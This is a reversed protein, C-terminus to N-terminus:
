RQGSPAGLRQLQWGRASLRAPLGQPGALHLAGVAVLWPGDEDQLLADIRAAWRAQREDLLRQWLAATAPTGACGCWQRWAALEDLRGESWARMLRQQVAAWAPDELQDLLAHVLAAGDADPRVRWAAALEQPTDLGRLPLGAARAHGRLVEEQSWGGDWGARRARADGLAALQQLMTGTRGDAVLCATDAARALRQTLAAPWPQAPPATSGAPRPATTEVERLAAALAPGQADLELVLGRSARMAARLAPGPAASALTGHHVTGYLWGQRAPRGGRAPREIRWLLGHDRAERLAAQLRATDPVAAPPPPCDGRAPPRATTAAAGADDSTAAARHPGPRADPTAGASAATDTTARGLGREDATRGSCAM